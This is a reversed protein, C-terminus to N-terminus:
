HIKEKVLQLEVEAYCPEDVEITITEGTVVPINKTVVITNVQGEVLEVEQQFVIEDADGPYQRKVTLTAM